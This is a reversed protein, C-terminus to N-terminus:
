QGHTPAEEPHSDATAGYPTATRRDARAANVNKRRAANSLNTQTPTHRVRRLAFVVPLHWKRAMGRALLEAQNFGREWRRRWDFPVPVVCDLRQQRPLLAALLDVLPGAMTKMRGYEYLHIWERLWGEYPGYGYAADFGRLGHRCWACRGQADLPFVNELPTGCTACFFEATFPEPARL